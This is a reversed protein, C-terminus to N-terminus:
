PEEETTTTLEGDNTAAHAVFRDLSAAADFPKAKPGSALTTM